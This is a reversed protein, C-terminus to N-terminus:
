LSKYVKRSFLPKKVPKISRIAFCLFVVSAILYFLVNIMWPKIEYGFLLPLMRRGASYIIGGNFSVLNSDILSGFGYLPNVFLFGALLQHGLGDDFNLLYLWKILYLNAASILVAGTICALFCCTRYNSITTSFFICISAMFSSTCLYFVFLALFSGIDIGKFLLVTAMIPFSAIILLLMQAISVAYKGLIISVPSFNTCLVLDLTQKEKEGSISDASLAVTIFIIMFYQLISLTIYSDLVGKPNLVNSQGTYDSMFISFAIIVLFGLYLVTLVSMRSNRMKLKLDKTIIPNAEM